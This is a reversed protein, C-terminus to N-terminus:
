RWVFRRVAGGAHGVGPASAKNNKNSTDSCADGHVLVADDEEHVAGHDTPDVLVADDGGEKAEVVEGGSPGEATVGDHVDRLHSGWAGGGAGGGAGGRAGGRVGGRAGVRAGVM